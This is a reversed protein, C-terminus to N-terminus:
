WEEGLFSGLVPELRVAAKGSSDADAQWFHHMISFANRWDRRQRQAMGNPLWKLLTLPYLKKM